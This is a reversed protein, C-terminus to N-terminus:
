SAMRSVRLKSKLRAEPSMNSLLNDFPQGAPYLAYSAAFIDAVRRDHVADVPHRGLIRIGKLKESPVWFGSTKLRSRLADLEDLLWFCGFATRPALFRDVIEAPSLVGAAPDPELFDQGEEPGM